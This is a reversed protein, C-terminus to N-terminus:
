IKGYYNLMASLTYGGGKGKNYTSTFYEYDNKIAMTEGKLLTNKNEKFGRSNNSRHRGKSVYSGKSAYSGRSIYSGKSGSSRKSGYSGKSGRNLNWIRNVKSIPRIESDEIVRSQLILSRWNDRLKFSVSGTSGKKLRSNKIKKPLKVHCKSVLPVRKKIRQFLNIKSARKPPM